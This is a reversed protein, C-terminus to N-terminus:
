SIVMEMIVLSAAKGEVVIASLTALVNAKEKAVLSIVKVVAALFIVREEVAEISPDAADIAMSVGAKEVAVLSIVM